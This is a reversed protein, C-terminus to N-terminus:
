RILSLSYLADKDHRTLWTVVSRIAMLRRAFAEVAVLDLANRGFSAFAPKAMRLLHEREAVMSKLRRPDAGYIHKRSTDLLGRVPTAAVLARAFEETMDNVLIILEAAETRFPDNIKDLVARARRSLGGNGLLDLATERLHARYFREGSEEIHREPHRLAYPATEIGEARLIERLNPDLVVRALTQRLMDLRLAVATARNIADRMQRSARSFAGSYTKCAQPQSRTKRVPREPLAAYFPPADTTTAGLDAQGLRQRACLAFLPELDNSRLAELDAPNRPSLLCEKRLEASPFFYYSHAHESHGDMLVGIRLDDISMAPKVLWRPHGRQSRRQQAVTV